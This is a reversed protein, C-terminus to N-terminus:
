SQHRKRAVGSIALIGFGLLFISGPEPVTDPGPVPDGPDVDRVFLGFYKFSLPERPLSYGYKMNYVYGIGYGIYEGDSAWYSEERLFWFPGRNFSGTPTNGLEDRWLHDMEDITPLRWDGAWTLPDQFWRYYSYDDIKQAKDNLDSWNYKTGTTYDAWALDSDEDYIIIPYDYFEYSTMAGARFLEAQAFGAAGLTLIIAALTTISKKFTM